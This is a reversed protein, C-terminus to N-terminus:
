VQSTRYLDAMGVLVAKVAEWHAVVDAAPVAPHKPPLRKTTIRQLAAISSDADGNWGHNRLEQIYVELYNYPDLYVTALWKHDPYVLVLGVPTERLDLRQQQAFETVLELLRRTEATSSVLAEERTRGLAGRGSKASVIATRGLLRPAIILDDDDDARYQKVAVAYVETQSMQGNLFEVIRLLEDPIVDAVFVLRLRGARLNTEVQAFFDEVSLTADDRLEAIAEASNSGAATQTAEFAAQLGAAPWYRVGNAAYDLMQGVVERRIRTDTSRKVEVLTPVADQDVFLHDVSWRGTSAESDPVSQERKILLWRRPDGPSMQAGALLDPYQEILEQLVDEADYPAVRMAVLRKGVLHFLGDSMESYAERENALVRIM